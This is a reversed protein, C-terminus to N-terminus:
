AAASDQLYFWSDEEPFQLRVKLIWKLLRELVQIYFESNVAKGEQVLEKHIV